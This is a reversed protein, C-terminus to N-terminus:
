ADEKAWRQDWREEPRILGHCWPRQVTASRPSPCLPALGGKIKLGFQPGFPQFLKKQSRGGRIESDPHSPEGSIYGWEKQVIDSTRKHGRGVPKYPHRICPWPNVKGGLLAIMQVSFLNQGCSAHDWWTKKLDQNTTWSLNFSMAAWETSRCERLQALWWLILLLFFRPFSPKKTM